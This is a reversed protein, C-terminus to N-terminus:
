KSKVDYCFLVDWDRLYLKGNAVVPHPWASQKSRDPQLFQGKEVYKAPNAEVLAVKGNEGRVYLHGDAYTVSGKGVSRDEWVIKGTKFDICLLSGTTGYLHDKILVLGGHHNQIRSNFYQPEAKFEMGTKVIKALGGGTSYATAAFVSDDHVIPTSINATNNAPEEYHWLLKGDKAAVGIVGGDLFQVYQKVGGFEAVIASSYGAAGYPRAPRNGGKGGKSKEGAPKRGVDATSAKWVVDGTLRDFAVLAASNSGPSGIVWDGDVLPSEAYAWSGHQGGFDKKFSKQWKVTGKEIDVCVLIGDSGVAYAFGRDITPTSRAGPYSRGSNKPGIKAEWVKSGDEVKLCIVYEDNERTGLLYIRGAAVSPTSYGDGLGTIKWVQKPGDKPWEKLLGTEKSLGTRDPGRWQPWDDALLPAATLALLCSLRLTM